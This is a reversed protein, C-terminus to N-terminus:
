KNKKKPEIERRAESIDINVPIWSCRSVSPDPFVVSCDDKFRGVLTTFHYFENTNKRQSPFQQM